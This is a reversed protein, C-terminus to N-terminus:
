CKYVSITFHTFRLANNCMHFLIQKHQFITETHFFNIEYMYWTQFLVSNSVAKYLCDSFIFGYTYQYM